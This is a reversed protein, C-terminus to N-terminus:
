SFDPSMSGYGAGGCSEVVLQDGQNLVPASRSGLEEIDGNQRLVRAAAPQPAGGGLLGKPVHRFRDGRLSVHIGDQLALYRRAIGDGGRWRGSGGSGARIRASLLRVPIQTELAEAPMNMANGVDTSIGSAGHQAPGGGAGGAIIETAIFRTGDSRAGSFALVFSMGSNAAPMIEPRASALGQLLASTTSRVIGMRANVAAPPSANIASGEPLVLDICRVVGGNRFVTDEMASLLAYFAAAFPGSRVCNIPAAVQASTGTFDARFQGEACTLRLKIKVEPLGPAPDLQEAAEHPGPAMRAIARRALEEGRQLCTLTGAVYADNGVEAVLRALLRSATIAAGIQSSLDGLVTDAARSNRTILDEVLPDILDGQGMRLPGLRLGEQFIDVADPPVSGARMGGIDQHHLISAALAVVRDGAFVPRIVTLDPLHTGGEFPDNMLYLDGERMTEVPFKALVARASGDLAGLLLPIADSLALLEGEPTLLAAAADNGERVVPSVATRFLMNQMSQAIANLRMQLTEPRLASGRTNSRTLSVMGAMDDRQWGAPTQVEAVTEGALAPLPADSLSAISLNFVFGAERSARGFRAVHDKAFAARLDRVSPTQVELDLTVPHMFGNPALTVRLRGQATDAQSQRLREVIGGLEADTLQALARNVPASAERLHRALLLGVAGSMAGHGGIFVRESGLRETLLCALTGGLGGGVILPVAAPDINRDVAYRILRAVILDLAADRIALALAEPDRSAQEALIAIRSRADRALTDPLAGLCILADTLSPADPAPATALRLGAADEWRSGGGLAVSQIDAMEIRTPVDSVVSYHTLAPAGDAILAIDTSTSGIDLALAQTVQAQRAVAGAFLASAAPGSVLQRSALTAAEAGSVLHGRSEAYSLRGVFGLQNLVAGIDALNARHAPYLAAELCASVTREYERASGDVQHSLIVPIDPAVEALIKACLLEHAPNLHAFLLCVAIAEVGQDRLAAGAERLMDQALPTLEEGSPSLRGGVEHIAAPAVLFTPSPSRAVPQYLDARNQRALPLTDAFGETTILGVRALDRGLLMNIAGTSGIRIEDLAAPDIARDQAMQTIAAGIEAAASGAGKPMKATIIGGGRALALDVTAAGIDIGLISM